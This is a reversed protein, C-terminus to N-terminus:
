VKFLGFACYLHARDNSLLWCNHSVHGIITILVRVESCSRIYAPALSDDLLAPLSPSKNRKRFFYFTFICTVSLHFLKEM